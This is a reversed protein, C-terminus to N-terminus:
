KKFYHFVMKRLADRQIPKTIYYNCGAALAKDNDGNLAYATLAIIIIDKNFERIQRTAEYGNMEPMEIDMLVLDLDPNNRCTEVAENGKRAILIESSFFRSEM